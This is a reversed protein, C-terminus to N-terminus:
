TQSREELMQILPNILFMTSRDGSSQKEAREAQLTAIQEPDLEGGLEGLGGGGPGGGLGGGPGGGPFVGDRAGTRPDGATPWDGDRALGLEQTLEFIGEQTLEMAAIAELQESSMTELIQNVIAEIEGEASIDSSSLSRIAQWLTLLEAAQESDVALNTEELKLTGLTLQTQVSLADPYDANLMTTASIAAGNAGGCAVLILTLSVLSGLFKVKKM